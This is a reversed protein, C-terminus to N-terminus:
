PAPDVLRGWFVWSLFRGEKLLLNNLRRNNLPLSSLPRNNPGKGSNSVTATFTQTYLGPLVAYIQASAVRVRFRYNNGGGCTQDLSGTFVQGTSTNFVLPAVSGNALDTWELVAPIQSAGSQLFFPTAVVM